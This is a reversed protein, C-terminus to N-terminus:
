AHTAEAILSVRYSSVDQTRHYIGPFFLVVDGPDTPIACGIAELATRDRARAILEGNSEFRWGQQGDSDSSMQWQGEVETVMEEPSAGGQSAHIEGAIECLQHAHSMPALVVNTRNRGGEKSLLGWLKYGRIGGDVHWDCGCPIGNDSEFPCDHQEPDLVVHEIERVQLQGVATGDHVYPLTPTYGRGNWAALMGDLTDLLQPNVSHIESPENMKGGRYTSRGHYKKVAQTTGSSNSMMGRLYQLNVDIEDASVAGRVVLVGRARVRSADSLAADDCRGSYREKFVAIAADLVQAPLGRMRAFCHARGVIGRYEHLPPAGVPTAEVDTSATSGDPKVM